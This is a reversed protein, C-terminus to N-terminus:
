VTVVFQKGTKFDTCKFQPCCKPFTWSPNTPLEICEPMEINPCTEINITQTEIDCTMAACIGKPRYEKNPLMSRKTINDFCKGPHALFVFFFFSSNIIIILYFIFLNLFSSFFSPFYQLLYVLM